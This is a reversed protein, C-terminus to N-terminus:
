GHTDTTELLARFSGAVYNHFDGGRNLLSSAHHPSVKANTAGHRYLFEADGFSNLGIARAGDPGVDAEGIGKGPEM